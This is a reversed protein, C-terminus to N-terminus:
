TLHIYEVEDHHIDDHSAAGENHNNQALERNEVALAPLTLEQRRLKNVLYRLTRVHQEIGLRRGVEECSIIRAIADEILRRNRPALVMPKIAASQRIQRRPVQNPQQEAPPPDNEEDQFIYDNVMKVVKLKGILTLLLLYKQCNSKQTTENCINTPCMESYM